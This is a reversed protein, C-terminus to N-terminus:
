PNSEFHPYPSLLTCRPMYGVEVPVHSVTMAPTTRFSRDAGGNHRATHFDERVNSMMAMTIPDSTAVSSFPADNAILM